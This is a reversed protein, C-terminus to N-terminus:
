TAPEGQAREKRHRRKDRAAAAASGGNATNDIPEGGPLHELEEATLAPVYRRSHHVVGFRDASEGPGGADPVVPLPTIQVDRRKAVVEARL